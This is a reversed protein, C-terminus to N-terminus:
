KPETVFVPLYLSDLIWEKNKKIRPKFTIHLKYKRLCKNIQNITNRDKTVIKYYKKKSLNTGYKKKTYESLRDFENDYDEMLKEIDIDLTKIKTNLTRIVYVGEPAIVISGQTLKRDFLDIFVIIDEVTPLDFLFGENARSQSYPSPPHTHFIYEYDKIEAFKVDPFLIGIDDDDERRTKASVTIRELQKNFDLHGAHESFNEESYKGSYKKKGGDIMLADMIMMQNQSIKIYHVKKSKHYVLKSKIKTM